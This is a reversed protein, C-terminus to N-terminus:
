VVNELPTKKVNTSNLGRYVFEGSRTSFNKLYNGVSRTREKTRLRISIRFPHSLGWPSHSILLIYFAYEDLKLASVGREWLHKNLDYVIMLQECRRDFILIQFLQDLARIQIRKNSQSLLRIQRNSRSNQWKLLVQLSKYWHVRFAILPWTLAM